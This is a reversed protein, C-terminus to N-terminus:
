RTARMKIIALEAKIQGLQQLIEQQTSLIKDLKSSLASTDAAKTPTQAALPVTFFFVMLLLSFGMFHKM